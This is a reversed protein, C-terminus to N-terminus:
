KVQDKQSNLFLDVDEPEVWYMGKDWMIKNLYNIDM